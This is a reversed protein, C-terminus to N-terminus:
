FLALTVQFSKRRLIKIHTTFCSFIKSQNRFQQSFALFKSVFFNHAFSTHLIPTQGRRCQYSTLAKLLYSKRPENKGIIEVSKFDAYFKANKPYEYTLFSIFFNQPTMSSMYSYKKSICTTSHLNALFPKILQFFIKVFM